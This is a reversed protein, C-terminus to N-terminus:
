EYSPAEESWGLEAALETSPELDFSEADWDTPVRSAQRELDYRRSYRILEQAVTAAEIM